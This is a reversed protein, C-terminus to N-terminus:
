AILGILGGALQLSNRLKDRLLSELGRFQEPLRFYSELYRQNVSRIEWQATGWSAKTEHRAFATMSHIM